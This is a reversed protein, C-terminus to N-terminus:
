IAKHLCYSSFNILEKDRVYMRYSHSRLYCGILTGNGINEVHRVVGQKQMICENVKSGLSYSDVFEIVLPCDMSPPVLVPRDTLFLFGRESINLITGTHETYGNGFYANAELKVSLRPYNRRDKGM